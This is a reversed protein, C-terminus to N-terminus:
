FPLTLTPDVALLQHRFINQINKLSQENEAEFRLVLNPTTNSPRILGWGESFEVRLGDITSIKGGEFQCSALLQEMFHFKRDDGIPIQLEPTNVGDPFSSFLESISKDSASLIELLRVGAYLADDFGYWRDRFFIHGSMEGALLANTELMKAKIFSHGTKWMIPQGQHHEIIEQLHKTCKVDFLIVGNKHQKLIDQAFLMLQRDPWIIEGLNTVVGLRDGDGDFALGIDAKNNVVAQILHQLNKTQSPDPHHNPFNGDIDCFLESVDCGLGRYLKGAIKGTVGNGCDIVIKLPRKLTVNNLIKEIYNDDIAISQYQGQGSIFEQRQATHYLAQIAEGSITKGAIIIKLGNYQQPNHSGTIMIGSQSSLIHTAFNLVPTPVMGIDIVNIGSELVGQTVARTLTDGSLRGDKGIIISNQGASAVMTAIAKAIVKINQANLEQDVIGRIDYARFITPPLLVSM